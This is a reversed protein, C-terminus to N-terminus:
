SLSRSRPHNRHHFGWVHLLTMTAVRQLAAFHDMGAVLRGIELAPTAAMGSAKVTVNGIMAITWNMECSEEEIPGKEQPACRWRLQMESAVPARTERTPRLPRAQM